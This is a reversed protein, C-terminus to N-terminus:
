WVKRNILPIYNAVILIMASTTTCQVFLELVITTIHLQFKRSALTICMSAFVEILL